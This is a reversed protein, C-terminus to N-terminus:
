KVCVPRIPLGYYVPPTSAIISYGSDNFYLLTKTSTVSRSKNSSWYEGTKGFGVSITATQQIGSAPLFISVGNPGTVKQGYVGKYLIWVWSCRDRLEMCEKETPIRWTGGWLQRAADYKMSLVSDQNIVGLSQLMEISKGYYPYSGESYENAKISAWQFYDGSQEPSESGINYGAWCVSLGLDVKQTSSVIFNDSNALQSIPLDWDRYEKELPLATTLIRFTFPLTREVRSTNESFYTYVRYGFDTKVKKMSYNNINPFDVIIFDSEGMTTYFDYYTSTANAPISEVYRIRDFAYSQVVVVNITSVNTKISVTSSRGPAQGTENYDILGTLEFGNEVSGSRTMSKISSSYSYTWDETNSKVHITFYQKKYDLSISKESVILYPRPNQIIDVKKSLGFSNYVMISTIRTESLGNESILGNVKILNNENSLSISKIINKPFILSLDEAKACDSSIFFSFSQEKNDLTLTGTNFSFDCADRDHKEVCSSVLSVIFSVLFIILKNM